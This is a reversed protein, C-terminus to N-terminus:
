TFLTERLNHDTGPLQLPNQRFHKWLTYGSTNYVDNKLQLGTNEGTCAMFPPPTYIVMFNMRTNRRQRRVEASDDCVCVGIASGAGYVLVNSERCRSSTSISDIVPFSYKM